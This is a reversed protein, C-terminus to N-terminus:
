GEISKVINNLEFNIKERTAYYEPNISNETEDIEICKNISTLSKEYDGIYFYGLALTNLYISTSEIIEFDRNQIHNNRIADKASIIGQEFLGQEYYEYAKQNLEKAYNPGFRLNVKVDKVTMDLERTIDELTPTFNKFYEEPELLYLNKQKETYLIKKVKEFLLLAENNTTTNEIVKKLDNFAGTYNDDQYRLLGRYFYADWNNPELKIVKDFDSKAESYYKLDLNITGRNMYAVSYKPDLEIAISFEEKAGSYDQLKYKSVASEFYDNATKKPKLFDFIGM